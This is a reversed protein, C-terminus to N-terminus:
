TDYAFPVKRSVYVDEATLGRTLTSAVTDDIVSSVTDLTFKENSTTFNEESADFATHTYDLGTDLVAVVVGDGQYECSSSDFIGTDYVDVLNKVVVSECPNYVEGVILTAYNGLLNDLKEFDKAKVTVEFGSLLTEYSEGLSFKIGSRRLIKLLKNKESEIANTVKRGEGTNTYQYISSSTDAQNYADLVSSVNMEVIVSIDEDDRVTSPLKSVVDENFYSAVDNDISADLRTIKEQPLYDAKVTTQPAKAFFAVAMVAVMVFSLIKPFVKKFKSM